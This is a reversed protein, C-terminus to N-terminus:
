PVSNRAAVLRIGIDALALAFAFIALPHVLPSSIQREAPARKLIESLPANVAGGTIEAIQSLLAWNPESEPDEKGVRDSAAAAPLWEERTFLLEKGRRKEIVV